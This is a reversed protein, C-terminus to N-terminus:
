HITENPPPVIFGAGRLIGQGQESLIFTVWQQALKPHTAARVVAIPYKAMVNMERPINVISVQDRNTGVDTRYVIGADAEGLTVKALVQRVNLERSVIRAEVRARFDSGLSRSANDLIQLTYKGVPVEPAGVVIRTATPLDAFARITTTREKAVIMVPENQAFILSADVRASAQLAKMHREDASAFVDAPAGQELQTRIEQTGAFNFAVGVGSHLKKFAESESGFVERLSAAAFIVLKDERPTPNAEPKAHRCAVLTTLTSAVCLTRLVLTVRNRTGDWACERLPDLRSKLVAKKKPNKM